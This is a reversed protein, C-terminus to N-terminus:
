GGGPSERVGPLIRRTAAEVPLLLSRTNIKVELVKQLYLGQLLYLASTFYNVELLISMELGPCM